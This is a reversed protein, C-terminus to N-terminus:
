HRRQVRARFDSMELFCTWPSEAKGQRPRHTASLAVAAALTSQHAATTNHAQPRWHECARNQVRLGGCDRMHPNMNMPSSETCCTKLKSSQSRGGGEGGGYFQIESGGAGWGTFHLRPTCGECLTSSCLCRLLRKKSCACLQVDYEAPVKLLLCPYM